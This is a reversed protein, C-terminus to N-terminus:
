TCYSLLPRKYLPVKFDIKLLCTDITADCYLHFYLTQRRQDLEFDFRHRRKILLNIHGSMNAMKQDTTPQAILM